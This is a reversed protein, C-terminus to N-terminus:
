EGIEIVREGADLYITQNSSIVSTANPVQAICPIGMELAVVCIHSLKGGNECILGGAMMVCESYIPDSNPLVLIDGFSMRSMDEASKIVVASGKAVGGNVTIGGNIIKKMFWDGTRLFNNDAGKKM